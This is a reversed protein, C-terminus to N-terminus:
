PRAPLSSRRANRGLRQDIATTSSAKSEAPATVTLFGAFLLALGAALTVSFAAGGLLVLAGGGSAVAALVRPLAALVESGQPLRHRPLAGTFPTAALVGAAFAALGFAAAVARDATRRPALLYMTGVALVPVDLVAGCLYFLRFTVGDWGVGAGKALAAAALSALALGATWALEHRRRRDLWRELACLALALALLCAAVAFGAQTTVERPAYSHGGPLRPTPPGEGRNYGPPDPPRGGTTGKHVTSSRGLRQM